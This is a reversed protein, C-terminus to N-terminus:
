LEEMVDISVLVDVSADFLEFGTNPQHMRENLWRQSLLIVACRVRLNVYTSPHAMANFFYTFANDKM